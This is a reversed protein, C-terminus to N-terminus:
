TLCTWAQSLMSNSTQFGHIRPVFEIDLLTTLAFNVETFGHTDTSHITSEVVDNHLLGDVVYPAERESASFTTSHFLRHRDDLFSYLM